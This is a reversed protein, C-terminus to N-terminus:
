DDGIPPIDKVDAVPQLPLKHDREAKEILLRLATKMVETPTEGYVHHKRLEAIYWEDRASFRVSTSKRAGQPDKPKRGRAM